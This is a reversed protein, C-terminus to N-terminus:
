FKYGVNIGPHLLVETDSVVQEPNLYEDDRYHLAMSATVNWGSSWQWRDGGALASISPKTGRVFFVKMHTMLNILTGNTVTVFLGPRDETGLQIEIQNYSTYATCNSIDLIGECCACQKPAHHCASETVKPHWSKGFGPAGKQKGVLRKKDPPKNKPAEADSEPKSPWFYGQSPACSGTYM